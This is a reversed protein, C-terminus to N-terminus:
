FQMFLIDCILTTIKLKMPIHHVVLIGVPHSYQVETLWSTCCIHNAYLHSVTFLAEGRDSLLHKAGGSLSVFLQCASDALM